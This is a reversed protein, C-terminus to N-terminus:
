GRPHVHVSCTPANANAHWKEEQGHRPERTNPVVTTKLSNHDSRDICLRSRHAESILRSTMLSRSTPSKTATQNGAVNSRRSKNDDKKRQGQPVKRTADHHEQRFSAITHEDPSQPVPSGDHTIIFLFHFFVSLFFRVIISHFISPFYSFFSCYFGATEMGRMRSRPALPRRALTWRRAGSSITCVVMFGPKTSMSVV